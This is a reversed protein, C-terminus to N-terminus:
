SRAAPSPCTAAEEAGCHTDDEFRVVTSDGPERFVATQRPTVAGMREAMAVGRLHTDSLATNSLRNDREFM